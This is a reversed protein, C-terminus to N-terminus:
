SVRNKSLILKKSSYFILAALVIISIIQFSSGYKLSSPEFYFKIQNAGKPVFLGRLIFNVKHLKVEKNNIEAKWGPYFMESFVVFGPKNSKISYIKKHTKNKLLEIQSTRREKSNNIIDQNKSEIIATDRLDYKLLNMYVSDPNEEFILKEAFWALGLNNPNEIANVSGEKEEIVYKVNLINLLETKKSQLFLKYFQELRRPKAGHYGGVSNHFFSARANQMTSPPEFVRFYSTDKLIEKDANNESYFNNIRSPKLFLGRDLYRNSINILDFLIFFLVLIFTMRGNIKKKLFLFLTTFVLTILFMGRLVDNKFIDLRTQKILQMIEAGFIQGYYNDVPGSFSLSFSSFYILILIFLFSLYSKVLAPLTKNRPLEFFAYFGITALIPFCFELIVQISSVARFKNYFPFYEIFIKTLFEFNKGWSLLLSVLIGVYIWIYRKQISSFFITVISLFIVTIGVYPPAELIPQDGWYTPVNSSFSASQTPSLGFNRIDNYFKSDVGLNETSSGGNIRPIFINLSEFIGMSFQTIYDYSLGDTIEVLKGREDITIDSKGRTSYKSYEYTSFLSTANLGLAILISVIVKFSKFGFSKLRRAKMDEFFKSVLFIGMLIFMYYSIQYHNARIQLGIFLSLIIVSWISKNKFIYNLSAFVMPLYGLATAKTNHGVQIIILLYTSLGYCIAGFFAFKNKFGLSLIFFYFGLLYIFIMYSPHPLFKFLKHIPTLVDYPYKAGLQYTPMGCYANDIWYLEEDKDIRNDQLQRSMALYQQTDSQMIKKGQLIPYFIFLSLLSFFSIYIFHSLIESNLIKKM